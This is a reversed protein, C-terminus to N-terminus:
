CPPGALEAPLSKNTLEQGIVLLSPCNKNSFYHHSIFRELTEDEEIGEELIFNKHGTVWGGNVSSVGIKRKGKSTTLYIADRNKSFGAVSQTRQIDRLASIRDRYVAAKEYQRKSALDDMLNYFEQVLDESRGSLLLEAGRVERKYDEANILGICPASCRGIEYQM